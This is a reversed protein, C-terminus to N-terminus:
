DESINKEKYAESYYLDSNGAYTVRIYALNWGIEFEYSYYGYGDTYANATAVVGSSNLIEIIVLGGTIVSSNDLSLTGSVTLHDGYSYPPGPTRSLTISTKAIMVVNMASSTLNIAPMTYTVSPSNPYDIVGEFSVKFSIQGLKIGDALKFSFKFQGNDASTITYTTNGLIWGYQENNSSDYVHLNVRTWAWPAGSTTTLNGNITILTGSAGRFATSPANINSSAKIQVDNNFFVITKNYMTPDDALSVTFRHVGAQTNTNRVGFHVYGDYGTTLTATTINGHDDSLVISKGATPMDQYIWLASITATQSPNLIVLNGSDYSDPAIDGNIYLILRDLSAETVNLGNSLGTSRFEPDAFDQDNWAINWGRQTLTQNTIIWKNNFTVVVRYPNYAPGAETMGDFYFRDSPAFTTGSGVTYIHSSPLLNDTKDVMNKDRLGFTVQYYSIYQSTYTDMVRGSILFNANSDGRAYSGGSPSNVIVTTPAKIIVWICSTNTFNQGSWHAFYGRPGMGFTSNYNGIKVTTSGHGTSDTNVTAVTAWTIIDKIEITTEHPAGGKAAYVSFTLSDKERNLVLPVSTMSGNVAIIVSKADSDEYRIPLSDETEANIKRTIETISFWGNFQARLSYDGFVVSSHINATVSATGLNGTIRNNVNSIGNDILTAGDMLQLDIMANKIPRNVYTDLLQVNAIFAREPNTKVDITSPNISTLTLQADPTNVILLSKNSITKGSGLVAEFLLVHPGSELDTMLLTHTALGHENTTMTFLTRNDYTEDKVTILQNKVPATQVCTAGILVAGDRGVVQHETKLNADFSLFINNKSAISGPVMRNDFEAWLGGGAVPIYFEPWAYTNMIRFTYALNGEEEPDPVPDGSLANNWKYGTTYRACLGLARGAMVALGAFDLPLNTARYTCFWEIPDEDSAPRAEFTPDYAFNIEIYALLADIKEYVTNASIYNPDVQIENVLDNFAPNNTRYQAWTIQNNDADRPGATYAGVNIGQYDSVDLSKSAYWEDSKKDTASRMLNYSVNIDTDVNDFKSNYYVGGMNLQEKVIHKNDVPYEPQSELSYQEIRASPNLIPLGVNMTAKTKAVIKIKFWREDFSGTDFLYDKVSDMTSTTKWKYDGINYSDHSTIKFMDMEPNTWTKSSDVYLNFIPVALLAGLLEPPIGDLMSPDFDGGNVGEIIDGLQDKFNELFQQKQEDTMNQIFNLIDDELADFLERFDAEIDFDIPDMRVEQWDEQIGEKVPTLGRRTGGFLMSALMTSMTFAAILVVTMILLSTWQKKANMRLDESFEFKKAM